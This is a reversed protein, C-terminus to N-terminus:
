PLQFILNGESNLFVLHPEGKEFAMIISSNENSDTLGIISDGEMTDMIIRSKEDSDKFRLVPFGKALILSM